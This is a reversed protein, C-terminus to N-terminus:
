AFEEAREDSSDADSWGDWAAAADSPFLQGDFAVRAPGIADPAGVARTPDGPFLSSRKIRKLAENIILPALPQDPRSVRGCGWRTYDLPDGSTSARSVGSAPLDASREDDNWVSADGAGHRPSALGSARSSDELPAASEVLNGDASGYAEERFAKDFESEPAKRLSDPAALDGRMSEQVRLLGGPFAM